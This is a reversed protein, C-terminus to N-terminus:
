KTGVMKKRHQVFLYHLLLLLKFSVFCFHAYGLFAYLFQDFGLVVTFTCVANIFFLDTM